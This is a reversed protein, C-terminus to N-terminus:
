GGDVVEVHGDLWNVNARLVRGARAFRLFGGCNTGDPRFMIEAVGDRASCNGGTELDFDVDAPIAVSNRGSRLIRQRADFTASVPQSGAIAATRAERLVSVSASVLALLRSPTTGLPAFPFAFGLILLTIALAAVVEILM